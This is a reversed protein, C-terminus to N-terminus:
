GTKAVLGLELFKRLHRRATRVELGMARGYQGVRTGDQTSLWEWGKFESSNLAARADVPLLAAAATPNRFMTLVLYPDDWTFRPRPLGLTTARTQLSRLGLGREEA